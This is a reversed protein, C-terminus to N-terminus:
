LLSRTINEDLSAISVDKIAARILMSTVPKAMIFSVWRCKNTDGTPYKKYAVDGVKLILLGVMNNENM